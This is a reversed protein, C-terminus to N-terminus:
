AEKEYTYWVVTWSTYPGPGTVVGVITARGGCEIENLARELDQTSGTVLRTCWKKM